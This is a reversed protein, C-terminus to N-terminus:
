CKQTFASIVSDSFHMCQISSSWFLAVIISTLFYEKSFVLCSAARLGSVFQLLTQIGPTFCECELHPRPFPYTLTCDPLQSAEFTIFDNLVPCKRFIQAKTNKDGAVASSCNQSHPSNTQPKPSKKLLYFM